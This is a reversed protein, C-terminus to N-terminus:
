EHETTKVSVYAFGSLATLALLECFLAPLNIATTTVNGRPGPQVLEDYERHLVFGHLTNTEAPLRFTGTGITVSVEFPPFLALAAILLLWLRVIWTQKNNM